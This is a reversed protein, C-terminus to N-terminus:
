ATRRQMADVFSLRATQPEIRMSLLIIDQIVPRPLAYKKALKRTCSLGFHFDYNIQARVAPLIDCAARTKRRASPAPDVLHLEGRQETEPSAAPKSRLFDRVTKM